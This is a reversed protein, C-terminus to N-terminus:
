KTRTNKLGKLIAIVKSPSSIALRLAKTRKNTQEIQAQRSKDTAEEEQHRLLAATQSQPVELVKRNGKKHLCFLIFIGADRRHQYKQCTVCPLM